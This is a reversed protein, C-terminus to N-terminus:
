FGLFEEEDSTEQFLNLLKQKEQSELEEATPYCPKLNCVHATRVDEGTEELAIQYNLPGLRKLVWYPGKWKPALKATFNHQTSSQPFNRLWIRSKGEFSAERRTKNYSRLQRKQAKKCCEEAKLKLQVLHHVVDYSPTSPSLSKVQLLKDMPSKLKRGIQLEAPSMGISEQVASNIAFRLEPLHQDGKKHNDDVYSAIM